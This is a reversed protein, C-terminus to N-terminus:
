LHPVKLFESSSKPTWGQLEVHWRYSERWVPGGLGDVDKEMYNIGLSGLLQQKPPWLEMFMLNDSGNHILAQLVVLAPFPLNIAIDLRESLSLRM